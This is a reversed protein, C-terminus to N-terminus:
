EPVFGKLMDFSDTITTEINVKSTEAPRKQGVGLTRKFEEFGMTIFSHHLYLDWM